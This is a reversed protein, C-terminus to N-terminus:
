ENKVNVIREAFLNIQDRAFFDSGTTMKMLEYCVQGMEEAKGHKFV